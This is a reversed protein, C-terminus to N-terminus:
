KKRKRLARKRGAVAMETMRKKGYKRRGIEAAVASPNKIGKRRLEDKLRAFRGGGGPRLSKGRYTSVAM